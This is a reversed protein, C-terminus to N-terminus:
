RVTSVDEPLPIDAISLDDMLSHVQARVSAKHRLHGAFSDRDKSIYAFMTQPFNHTM